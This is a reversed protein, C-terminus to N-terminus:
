FCKKVILWLGYILLCFAGIMMWVGTNPLGLRYNISDVARFPALITPRGYELPKPLHNNIASAAYKGGICAAEMSFIDITEKIYATAIFLNKFPTKYSPRLKYTGANNTFKPEQTTLRKLAANFQYTPWMPSWTVPTIENLYVGNEKKIRENLPKCACMQAWLETIIEEYTCELMPKGYVIGPVYATCAAVSWGGKVQPLRNCLAVDEYIKDYQLVIVDWASDVVLFSNVGAGTSISKDFYVQFSLQCHLGIERLPTITPFAQKLSPNTNIVLELAEVPLSFVFYDATVVNGNVVASTVVNGKTQVSELTANKVIKVGKSVLFTEWPNFFAESTPKTTIMNKKGHVWAPWMDMEFGVSIVSKFSGRYRDMGLWGGIARFLQSNSTTGLAEWWSLEDLKELREDCSTMGYFVKDLSKLLDKKSLPNNSVNLHHCLTLNDRVTRGPHNQLPIEKLIGLLNHYFDFFVRWCYETACGNADRSSRALGGVVNKKEFITIDYNGTKLLQHATTLGGVGAGFIVVKKM